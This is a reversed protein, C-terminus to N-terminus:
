GVSGRVRPGLGQKGAHAPNTEIGCGVPERALLVNTGGDAAIIGINGWSHAHHLSFSLGLELNSDSDRRGLGHQRRILFKGGVFLPGLEKVLGLLRLQNVRLLLLLLLTRMKLLHM